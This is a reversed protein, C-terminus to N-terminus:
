YPYRHFFWFPMNAKWKNVKPFHHPYHKQHPFPKLAHTERYLFYGHNKQHGSGVV